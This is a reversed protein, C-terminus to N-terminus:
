VKKKGKFDEVVKKAASKKVPPKVENFLPHFQECVDGDQVTHMGESNKFAITKGSNNKYKM